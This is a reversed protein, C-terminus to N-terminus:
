SLGAISIAEQILAEADDKTPAEAIIRMIPETNSARVHVWKADFDVRVGDADNVTADSWAAKIRKLIAPMAELGGVAQLDAKYKIMTYHPLDAVIASLPRKEVALLDLVIAMASLSDRVWTVAPM